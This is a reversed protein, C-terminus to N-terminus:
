PCALAGVVQRMVIRDEECGILRSTMSCHDAMEDTQPYECLIIEIDTAHTNGNNELM